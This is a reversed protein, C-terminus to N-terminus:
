FVDFSAEDANNGSYDQVPSSTLMRDYDEQKMFEKLSGPTGEPLLNGSGPSIAVTVVGAPPTQDAIPEDKLASRMYNIWIPLAAKGGYERYGLSKFDDNGVWVATVLDGGFGAFWADRHNNTSGTKGGIDARNLVKAATATGRLVVDRMLSSTLFASREDIARPALALPSPGVFDPDFKATAETSTATPGGASFDFGDVVVTTRQERALREPCARCARPAHTNGIVVGNRDVIRTIFYPEILFGGNAFVSYGRAMSIPTLSATGLSMSLNPPLSEIKFGFQTIYKRAFDVGIADLLRVSVLNRSQVLAERLRIPGAFTANDNQPRWVHGARDKFVVPADLVISAPTYGREFAASYLFPKFSSGPQRQAQTARNFKSRSYSLGGIIARVAGDEPALSVLASEAKPLQGLEFVGAKDTPLLRVIDGRKLLQGPSRGTWRSATTDITVPDAAATIVTASSGAVSAVIGVPMGAVFPYPRLRSRLAKADEDAAVDLHAEPARWGHRRDYEILGDRVAKAAALQDVSSVTTYVRFGSTEAEDGYRDQMARRVMEALYPADLEVKPEHRSAMNREAQAAREQAVSIFGVERMRQLVYNRRIQAREPNIIPNGSSPFKPIAALSAAEALTLQDLKKGYYYEAAAAVGYARNGFFIKNLYLELIENKTLEREMKLALLMEMLKRSYSYEDSLYFGRAVQQTITSGGPVRKNDTTALLWVARGIGKYDLGQHEYFRADEIAIFAQKVQLPIQEVKVPYRRTEGFQAILKNDASYVSLPVQLEIHRLGQVDPIRPAILLYLVGLALAALVVLVAGLLAM